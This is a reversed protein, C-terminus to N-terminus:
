DIIAITMATFQPKLALTLNVQVCRSFLDIILYVGTLGATEIEAEFLGIFYSGVMEKSLLLRIFASRNNTLIYELNM